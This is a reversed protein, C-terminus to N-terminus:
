VGSEGTVLKDDELPLFIPREDPTENPHHLSLWLKGDFDHFTMCHGGDSSYLPEADQQWPGLVQGTTSRAVGVTYGSARLSSWLILLEGNSSRHVWPGDTV